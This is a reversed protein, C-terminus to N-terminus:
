RRERKRGRTNQAIEIIAVFVEIGVRLLLVSLIAGVLTIIVGFLFVFAGLFSHTGIAVTLSYIISLLMSLAILVLGVVYVPGALKRTVYNTFTFDFLSSFFRTDDLREAFDTVSRYGGPPVTGDPASTADHAEAPPVATDPTAEPTAEPAAEPAAETFPETPTTAETYPETSATEESASASAEAESADPAATVTPESPTASEVADVSARVSANHGALATELISPVDGEEDPKPTAAAKSAATRRTTPKTSKETPSAETATAGAPKRAGTVPKRAASAGGTRTAGAKTAGTTTRPTTAKPAAEGAAKPTSRSPTRKAPAPATGETPAQDDGNVPPQPTSM